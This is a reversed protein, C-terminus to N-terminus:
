ALHLEAIFYVRGARVVPPTIHGAEEVTGEMPTLPTKRQGKGSGTEMRGKWEKM